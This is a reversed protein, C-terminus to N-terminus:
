PRSVLGAPTLHRRPVGTLASLHEDHTFILLTCHGQQQLTLLLSAIEERLEMDLASTPEDAILLDPEALMARALLLRQLEGGSLGTPRRHMFADTQPLRVQQLCYKIRAMDIPKQALKLPETLIQLLTFHEACAARAHQSLLMCRGPINLETGQPMSEWGALLRALSTKGSGSAGYVLTMSSRTLNLHFDKFLIHGRHKLHLHKLELASPADCPTFSHDAVAPAPTIAQKRQSDTAPLLQETAGQQLIQGQQMVVVRDALEQALHIDHTVLVIARVEKQAQLLQHIRERNKVDLAATPEDLLLVQPNSLLALALLVRQIEGGSLHRPYRQLLTEPLAVQQALDLTGQRLKRRPLKFHLKLGDQLHESVTMHPNLNDALGQPLLSMRADPIIQTNQGFRKFHGQVEGPCIGALLQLLSSKGAGSPGIIALCEGKDLNFNIQQLIEKGKVTLSLGSLQLLTENKRSPLTPPNSFSANM